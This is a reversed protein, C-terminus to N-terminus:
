KLLRSRTYDSGPGFSEKWGYKYLNGMLFHGLAHHVEYLLAFANKGEASICVSYGAEHRIRVMDTKEFYRLSSIVGGELCVAKELNAIMAKKEAIAKQEPSLEKEMKPEKVAHNVMRVFELLSRAEDQDSELYLNCIKIVAPRAKKKPRRAPRRKAYCRM